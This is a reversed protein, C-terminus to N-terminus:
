LGGEGLGMKLCNYSYNGNGYGVFNLEPWKRDPGELVAYSEGVLRDFFATVAARVIAIMRTGDITGVSPQDSKGLGKWFTMDSFDLHQAGNVTIERWWGSQAKPFVGWTGDAEPTHKQQGLLLVPRQADPVAVTTNAGVQLGDMNMGAIFAPHQLLAGLASAGGISHGFIAYHSTNFPANLQATLTPFYDLFAAFDRVRMDYIANVIEDTLNIDAGYISSGDPYALYAQEYPHDLAAITYGHSALESLLATFAM